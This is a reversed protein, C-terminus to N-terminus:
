ISRRVPHNYPITKKPVFQAKVQLEFRAVQDSLSAGIPPGGNGELCLLFRALSSIMTPFTDKAKM